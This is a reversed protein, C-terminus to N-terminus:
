GLRPRPTGDPFRGGGGLGRRADSDEEGIRDRRRDQGDQEGEKEDTAYDGEDAAASALVTRHLGEGPPLDQRAGEPHGQQNGHQDPPRPRDLRSSFTGPRFPVGRGRVGPGQRGDPRRGRAPRDLQEQDDSDEGRDHPEQVQKASAGSGIRLPIGCEWHRVRTLRGDERDLGRDVVEFRASVDARGDEDAEQPEAGEEPRTSEGVLLGERRALELPERDVSQLHGALLRSTEGGEELLRSVALVREALRIPRARDVAETPNLRRQLRSTRGLSKEAVASAREDEPSRMARTEKELAARTRIAAIM